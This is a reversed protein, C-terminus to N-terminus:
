VCSESENSVSCWYDETFINRYKLEIQKYIDLQSDLHNDLYHINNEILDAQAYMELVLLFYLIDNTKYKHYLKLSSTYVSDYLYKNKFLQKVDTM